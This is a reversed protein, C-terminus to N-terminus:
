CGNIHGRSSKGIEIISARLCFLGSISDDPDATRSRAIANQQAPSLQSESTDLSNEHAFVEGILSANLFIEEGVM